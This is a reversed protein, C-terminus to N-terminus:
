GNRGSDHSLHQPPRLLASDPARVSWTQALLRMYAATTEAPFFGMQVLRGTADDIFVVRTCRAGRGEFWDHRSGDIQLLEGFRSRRERLQIARVAKRRKPRWLSLEIQM